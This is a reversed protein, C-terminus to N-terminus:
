KLNAALPDFHSQPIQGNSLMERAAEIKADKEARPMSALKAKEKAEHIEKPTPM